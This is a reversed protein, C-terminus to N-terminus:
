VHVSTGRQTGGRVVGEGRRGRGGTALHRGGPSVPVVVRGRGRVIGWPHVSAGRRRGRPHSTLAEVRGRWSRM